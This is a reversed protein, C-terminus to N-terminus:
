TQSENRIQPPPTPLAPATAGGKGRGCTHGQHPDGALSPAGPARRARRGAPLTSHPPGPPSCAPAPRAHMSILQAADSRVPATAAPRAPAARWGSRGGARAERAKGAGVGAGSGGSVPGRGEASYAPQERSGRGRAAAARPSGPRGRPASLPRPHHQLSLERTCGGARLGRVWLGQQLGRSESAPECGKGGGAAWAGVSGDGCVAARLVGGVVTGEGGCLGGGGGWAVARSAFDGCGGRGRPSGPQSM